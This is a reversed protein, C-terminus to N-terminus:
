FGMQWGNTTEQDNHSEQFIRQSNYGLPTVLDPIQSFVSVERPAHRVNEQEHVNNGHKGRGSGDYGLAVGFVRDTTEKGYDDNLAKSVPEDEVEVKEKSVQTYDTSEDHDETFRHDRSFLEERSERGDTFIVALFVEQECATNEENEQKKSEYDLSRPADCPYKNREETESGAAHNSNAKFGLPGSGEENDNQADEIYEGVVPPAHM